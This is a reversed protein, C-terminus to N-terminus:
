LPYLLRHSARLAPAVIWFKPAPHSVAFRRFPSVAIGRRGRSFRRARYSSFGPAGLKEGECDNPRRRKAWEGSRGNASEGNGLAWGDAKWKGKLVPNGRGGADFCRRAKWGVM